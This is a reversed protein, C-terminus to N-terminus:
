FAELFDNGNRRLLVPVRWLGDLLSVDGERCTDFGMPGFVARSDISGKDLKGSKLCGCM